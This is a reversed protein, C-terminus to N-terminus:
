PKSIIKPGSSRSAKPSSSKESKFLQLQRDKVLLDDQLSRTRLEFDLIKVKLESNQEQLEKYRNQLVGM